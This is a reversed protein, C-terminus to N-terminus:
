RILRVVYLVVLISEEFHVPTATKGVFQQDTWKGITELLEVLRTIESYMETRVRPVSWEDAIKFVALLVEYGSTVELRVLHNV